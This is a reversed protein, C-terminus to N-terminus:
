LLKHKVVLYFLCIPWTVIMFMFIYLIPFSQVVNMVQLMGLGFSLAITIFTTMVLADGHAKGWMEDMIKMNDFFAYMAFIFPIVPLLAFVVQVLMGSEIKKGVLISIPMMLSFGVIGAM